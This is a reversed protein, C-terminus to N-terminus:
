SGGARSREVYAMRLEFLLGELIEDEQSTRRGDTKEKLMELISIISRAGALAEGADAGEPMGQGSLLMGAQAGLSLLFQGFDAPGAERVDGGTPPSGAGERDPPAGGPGEPETAAPPPPPSEAPPSPAEAKASAEPEAPPEPTERVDGEPTFHRRDKVTFRKNSESM